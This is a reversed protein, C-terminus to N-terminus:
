GVSFKIFTDFKFINRRQSHPFISTHTEGATIHDPLDTYKVGTVCQGSALPLHSRGIYVDLLTNSVIYFLFVSTQVPHRVRKKKKKQGPETKELDSSFDIKTKSLPVYGAALVVRMLVSVYVSCCYYM